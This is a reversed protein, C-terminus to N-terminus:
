ALDSSVFGSTARSIIVLDQESVSSGVHDLHEKMIQFRDESTPMDMRVDIDLRGGRRLCKDIDDLKNTTALVISQTDMPFKDM